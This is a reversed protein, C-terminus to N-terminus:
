DGGSVTFIEGTCFNGYDSVLYLILGAIEEPKGARKLSILNIRKEKDKKTRGLKNHIPTDIFGPRICNVLINYKAGEKSFRKMMVELGCKSVVYHLTKDHGGYKISISSIIIIKGGNHNKMYNFADRILFYPTFFNLDMLDLFDKKELELYNHSSITGANSILIDIGGYHKIFKKVLNKAIKEKSLDENYIKFNDGELYQINEFNSNCCTAVKAGENLLLKVTALGIGSSGGTILIRKDKIGKM